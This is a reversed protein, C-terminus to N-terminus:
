TNPVRHFTILAAAFLRSCFMSQPLGRGLLSLCPLALVDLVAAQAERRHYRARFSSSPRQVHNRHCSWGDKEREELVKSSGDCRSKIHESVDTRDEHRDGIKFEGIVTPNAPEDSVRRCESPDSPKHAHSARPSKHTASDAAMNIDDSFNSWGDNKDPSRQVGRWDSQFVWGAVESYTKERPSCKLTFKRRHALEPALDIAHIAIRPAIDDSHSFVQNGDKREHLYTYIPIWGKDDLVPPSAPDPSSRTKLLGIIRNVSDAGWHAARPAYANM